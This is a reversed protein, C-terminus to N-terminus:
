RSPSERCSSGVSLRQQRVVELVDHQLREVGFVGEEQLREWDLTAEIREYFLSLPLYTWHWPERVVRGSTGQYVMCFGYMPAHEELWDYFRKWKNNYEGNASKSYLGVLNKESIDLDTGWHHRSSGPVAITKAVQDLCERFSFGKAEYIKWKKNWIEKQNKFSRWASVVVLHYGSKEAEQQLHYFSEWVEPHAWFGTKPDQVLRAPREFGMLVDARFCGDECFGPTRPPEIKKPACATSVIAYFVVFFLCQKM